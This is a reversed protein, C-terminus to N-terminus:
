VQFSSLLVEFLQSTVTIVRASASYANQYIVTNALEEDLNVGSVASLRENFGDMLTQANKQGNQASAADASIFGLMQGAYSGFDTVSDGLGGAATFSTRASALAAMQQIVSNGGTYKEFTYRPTGGPPTASQMLQGTTILNPNTQLRSEVAMNLASNRLTDGTSTPENSAFFNNLEFYHLFSRDTGAVPTSASPLGLQKSDLADMAIFTNSDKSVLKLFGNETNVYKGSTDKPLENGNADVLIARMLPSNSSPTRLSATGSVATASYYQNLNSSVNNFVKYDITGSTVTGDEAVVSTAVRITYFNSATNGSLSATITGNDRTRTIEGTKADAYTTRATLGAVNASGTTGAVSAIQIQFSGNAVNSVQFVGTFQSAPIGNIAVGPDPLYIYDGEALGNPSTTAVTVVNSGSTTTFTNTSALTVSPLTSTTSTIDVGSDNLVTVGTVFFKADAGSINELDFDFKFQAPSGPISVSDSRLRINNLEGVSAKNQPMNFHSNIEDIITQTSPKGNGGGSNLESLDLTLPLMGTEGSYPSAIPQGNRDLLAIMMSGSWEYTDGANIERTGTYSTAGPYGTGSNHIANVADRLTASLNDLQSLIAPIKQDRIAMLGKLKGTLMTTTVTESQGGTALVQPTGVPNGEAGILSVTIPSIPANDELAQLSSLKSYSLQYLGGDLLVQGSNTTVRAEGSEAFYYNIDMQSGLDRLMVDRKDYLEGAPKGSNYADAIAQNVSHLSRLTTNVATVSDYVDQDAQYRLDYLDSALQSINRALQGGTNVADLKLSGTEPTEALTQLSNFFNNLYSDLSSGSGPKGLMSQIRDAYTSLVTQMGLEAGQKQVARAVYTDVQRTVDSITVGSGVGNIYNSSLELTKRTYDKNNANAINQAIEDLARRNVNLGSLATNLAVSISM